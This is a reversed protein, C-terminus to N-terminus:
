NQACKFSVTAKDYGNLEEGVFGQSQMNSNRSNSLTNLMQQIFNSIPLQQINGQQQQINNGQSFNNFLNSMLNINPFPPIQPQPPPPPPTTQIPPTELEEVFTEKCGVCVREDNELYTNVESSCQHCYYRPM